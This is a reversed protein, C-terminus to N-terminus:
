TLTAPETSPPPEPQAVPQATAAERLVVWAREVHRRETRLNGISLRITFRDDLRTHSLFVEGGANVANLIAANAADLWERVEPADERDALARPRWRFCITAFPVAALREWDPDADLWGAFAQALEIHRRIRRRLGEFGFWRLQIWLKLARFRRGLQPTYESYDRVPEERDLTRLYEPVLSFAARLDPMRRTLLLSADLPTFLWKHPNVVISDAREWGALDSRREPLLAVTGGYAADIHFWLGEREAIDAIAAAPDIATSSTTGITGVIALPRRGAGRDDAIAAALADPRLAYGEDTPIRVLSARGLGLTMLAKEISSHAQESAYIRLPPLDPRGVLGLEAARTGGAERAAALAILTSTSATDTLLGDFSSPLGLGDRLWGVVLGELETASPATRWLMPNQGLTATLMEGLIGPASATTAFYALFGPHQWHTANPEIISRYDDLIAALPDPGQPLPHAALRAGVAGPRMPPFVPYRELGELYDAMIDVVAHAAARFAEPDMDLLGDVQAPDLAGLDPPAADPATVRALM